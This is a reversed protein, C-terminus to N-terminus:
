MMFGATWGGDITLVHGNVYSCEPAALFLAGQAIEEPEGPRGLPIHEMLRATRGRFSGDEAYFLKRTIETVTSGPAIANVRIGRPALELAMSRTLHIVGAKAAVYPSQLRLAAIGVTSAINIIRGGPREALPPIAARSVLFVGNLDVGVIREWEEIPFADIDVRHAVTNVGANNVLVDLRGFARLTKKLAREIGQADRVDMEISVAKPLSAAVARAGAIDIDAIAVAAGNEAFATAIARGIGSAAGTVFAVQDVLDCKM